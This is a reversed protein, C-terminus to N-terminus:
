WPSLLDYRAPAMLHCMLSDDTRRCVSKRCLDVHTLCKTMTIRTVAREHTGIVRRGTRPWLTARRPSRWFNGRNKRRTLCSQKPTTPGWVSPSEWSLLHRYQLGSLWESIHNQTIYLISKHHGIEQRSFRLSLCCLCPFGWAVARMLASGNSLRLYFVWFM